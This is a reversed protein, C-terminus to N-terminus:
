IVYWCSIDVSGSIGPITGSSTYQWGFNGKYYPNSWGITNTYAAMWSVNAWISPDNLTDNLMARYSYVHATYGNANMTSIFANM